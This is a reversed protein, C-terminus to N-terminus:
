HKEQREHKDEMGWRRRARLEASENVAFDVTFDIPETIITKPIPATLLEEFSLKKM